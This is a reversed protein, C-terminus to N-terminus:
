EQTVPRDCVPPQKQRRKIKGDPYVLGPEALGLKAPDNERRQKGGKKIFTKGSVPIISHLRPLILHVIAGLVVLLRLFSCSTPALPLNQIELGQSSDQM